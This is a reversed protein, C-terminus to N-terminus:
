QISDIPFLPTFRENVQSGVDVPQGAYELWAHALLAGAEKRVGIRLETQIGRRGLMEQLTLAQRLCTMPYIHNNGAASVLHRIRSIIDRDSIPNTAARQRLRGAVYQRLRPFPGTRLLLDVVLLKTWAEGFILWDAASLAAAKRLKRQM